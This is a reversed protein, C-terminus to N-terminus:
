SSTGASTWCARLGTTAYKSDVTKGTDDNRVTVKVALIGKDDAWTGKLLFGNRIVVSAPPYAISVTPAIVDVSEGLGVDCSFFLTSLLGLIFLVNFVKKM